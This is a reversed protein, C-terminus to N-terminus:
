KDRIIVIVHGKHTELIFIQFNHPSIFTKDLLNCLLTLFILDIGLNWSVENSQTKKTRYSLPHISNRINVCFEDYTVM